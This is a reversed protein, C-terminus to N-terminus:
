AVGGQIYRIVEQLQVDAAMEARISQPSATVSSVVAAVYCKVDTHSDGSHETERQPSGSLADAVMLTEGLAYEAVQNFRMLWMLLRQCCIPVNDLDKSNM